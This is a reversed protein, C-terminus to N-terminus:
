CCRKIGNWKREQAYKFYAQRDMPAGGESAHHDRWHDLYREYADDGSVQRLFKWTHKAIKTVAKM